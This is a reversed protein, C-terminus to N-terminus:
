AARTERGRRRLRRASSGPPLQPLYSEIDDRFIDEFVEGAQRHLRVRQALSIEDYLTDQVLAHTFRYQGVAGSVEEVIQAEVAEGLAELLKFGQYGGVLAGIIDLSFERGLVSAITLAANCDPGLRNLRKGIVERVSEPIRSAIGELHAVNNSALGEEQVLYRVLGGVRNAVPSIPPKQRGLLSVISKRGPRAAAGNALRLSGRPRSRVRVWRGENERSARRPGFM